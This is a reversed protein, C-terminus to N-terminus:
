ATAALERLRYKQVKGTVTMPFGDVVRWYRPIKYRALRGRCAELLEAEVLSAGATPKVWAMVEEGYRDSPVGVVHAEAVGPLTHLFEEIERPSINEGARIIMDKIRGVISVYGDDDMTALDGAHMWGDADIAAATAEVDGWYGLMVGYGRTCQEGPVGRPVTEGTEPDVIKVEVHPHVRGVTEIRKVVPDDPATQTSLPSTETMGCVITVQEMHMDARVRQLVDVPCPAGGMMGTRLSSLDYRAFEPHALEAIFMTPVGYLATCREAEVTELVAAADFRDGSLVLCAGHAVCGLVGLVMGFTHYLPVPACVRDHESYRVVRGAFYANNLINHHTLTAGKPAGTTGSTFQINIPEHCSLSAERELLEAGSVQEGAALFADWEDFDMLLSVGAKGLAYDLEVPTYAPNLTVLIAGVRAAALQTVVWEYRNPSWIGVRDGKEVGRALLARAAQDVQAWLERYTARYGQHRAVLAERDPFRDVTRWLRAGITEDLLPVDRPGSAHSLFTM